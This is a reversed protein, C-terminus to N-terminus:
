GQAGKKSSDPAGRDVTVLSIREVADYADRAAASPDGCGDVPAYYASTVGNHHVWVLLPDQDAHPCQLPDATVRANPARYARLLAEPHPIRYATEWPGYTSVGDTDHHGDARCIYVEDVPIWYGSFHAPSVLPCRDLVAPVVLPALPAVTKPVAIGTPSPTPMPAPVLSVCATLGTGIALAVGALAVVISVRTSARRASRAIM